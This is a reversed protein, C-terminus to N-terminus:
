AKIGELFIKTFLKMEKKLQNLHKGDDVQGKLHRLIRIKLGQLIHLFLVSEDQTLSKKFEGKQKGEQFLSKIFKLERKHLEEFTQKYIAKTDIQSLVTLMGLNLLEQSIGIRLDVYEILKQSVPINKALINEVAEIFQNQEQQIVAKFLNEKAPFYYYLSAKGMEVDDAIEDMTVKSFGYRAFRKRAALLIAQEKEKIRDVM